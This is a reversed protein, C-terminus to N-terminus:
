CAFCDFHQTFPLRLFFRVESLYKHLDTEEVPSAKGWDDQVSVKQHEQGSIGDIDCLLKEMAEVQEFSDSLEFDTLYLVRARSLRNTQTHVPEALVHLISPLTKLDRGIWAPTDMGEWANVLGKGSILNTSPRFGFLGTQFAPIRSSGTAIM